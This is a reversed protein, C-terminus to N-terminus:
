SSERVVQAGIKQLVQGERGRERTIPTFVQKAAPQNPKAAIEQNKRRLLPPKAHVQKVENSKLISSM